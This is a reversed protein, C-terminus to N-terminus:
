GPIASALTLDRDQLLGSFDSAESFLQLESSFLAVGDYGAEVVDDLWRPVDAKALGTHRWMLSMCAIRINTMDDGM